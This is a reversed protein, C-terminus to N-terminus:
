SVREELVRIAALLAIVGTKAEAVSEPMDLRRYDDLARATGSGAQDCWDLIEVRPLKGFRRKATEFLDHEEKTLFKDRRMM